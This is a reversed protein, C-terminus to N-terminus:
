LDNKEQYTFGQFHAADKEKATLASPDVLTEQLGEKTFLKDICSVDTDSKVKPKFIAEHTM